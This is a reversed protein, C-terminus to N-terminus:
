LESFVFLLFILKMRPYTEANKSQLRATKMDSYNTPPKSGLLRLCIFGNMLRRVKLQQKGGTVNNLYEFTLLHLEKHEYTCIVMQLLSFAFVSSNGVAVHLIHGPYRLICM